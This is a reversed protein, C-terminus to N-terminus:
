TFSAYTFRMGSVPKGDELKQAILGAQSDMFINELGSLEQQMIQYKEREKIYGSTLKNYEVNKKYYREIDDCINKLGANEGKIKELEAQM